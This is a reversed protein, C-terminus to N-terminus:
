GAWLVEALWLLTGVKVIFVIRLYLSLNIGKNLVKSSMYNTSTYSWENKVKESSPHSQYAENGSGIHRIQGWRFGGEM